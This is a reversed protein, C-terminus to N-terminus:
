HLLIMKKTLNIGNGILNYLYIGSSLYEVNLSVAYEGPYYVEDFVVNVLEGLSNYVNLKYRGTTPIIFKISTTPNFPNPYNQFLKYDNLNLQDDEASTVLNNIKLMFIWSVKANATDTASVKIFYNGTSSPIGDFTRTSSDFSLWYPLPNGNSLSASYTLTNNGDDDIFTSDPFTYNYNYGVSDTQNPINYNLYPIFNTHMLRDILGDVRVWYIRTDSYDQKTGTTYFLYKKDSTIYPGWMALGFNIESGL